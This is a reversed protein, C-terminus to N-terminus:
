CAEWSAGATLDNSQRPPVPAIRPLFGRQVPQAPNRPGPPKVYMSLANVGIAYSIMNLLRRRNGLSHARRLTDDFHRNISEARNYKRKADAANAHLRVTMVGRVWITPSGTATTGAIPAGNTPTAILASGTSRCSSPNARSQPGLSGCTRSAQHVAHTSGTTLASRRLACRPLSLTHAIFRAARRDGVRSRGVAPGAVRRRATRRGRRDTTSWPHCLRVSTPSHCCRFRRWTAAGSTWSLRGTPSSRAHRAGPSIIDGHHLALPDTDDDDPSAVTPERHALAQGISPDIM